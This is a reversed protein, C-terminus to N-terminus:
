SFAKLLTGRCRTKSLTAARAGSRPGVAAAHSLLVVVCMNQFSVSSAAGTRAVLPTSWPQGKDGARNAMAM